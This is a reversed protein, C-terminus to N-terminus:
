RRHLNGRVESLSAKLTWLPTPVPRGVWLIGIGKAWAPWYRAAFDVQEISGDDHVLEGWLYYEHSDLDDARAELGFPTGAAQIAISGCVPQYSRGFLHQLLFCGVTNIPAAHVVTPEFLKSVAHHVADGIIARLEESPLPEPM